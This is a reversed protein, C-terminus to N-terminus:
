LSTGSAMSVATVFSSGFDSRRALRRRTVNKGHVAVITGIIILLM